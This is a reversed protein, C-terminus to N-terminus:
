PLAVSVLGPRVVRARLVQAKADVGRVRIWAGAPGSEMAEGPESVSFEDTEVAITVADGRNVAPTGSPGGASAARVPVFLRWGGLDPCELVVSDHRGDRWSLAAPSNCPKLRLRRDLPLMAGGESGAPVGTFEAIQRDLVNLDAFAAAVAISLIFSM